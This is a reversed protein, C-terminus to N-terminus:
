NMGRLAKRREQDQAERRKMWEAIPLQDAKTPDAPDIPVTSEGKKTLPTIPRPAASVPEPPPRLSLKALEIGMKVPSLSLIRLAENKDSGLEHIIKPGEGTEIVAELFRNYALQSSPDGPDVLSQLESVRANFVEAGFETRGSAAVANCDDNFKRAQAIAEARRTIEAEALPAESGGEAPPKAALLARTDRLKASLEAIRADKWANPDPKVPVPPVVAPPEVVVPPEVVAAVPPDAVIAAVVAQPTVPTVVPPPADGDPARMTFDWLGFRKHM